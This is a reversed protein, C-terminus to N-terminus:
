ATSKWVPFAKSSFTNGSHSRVRWVDIPFSVQQMEQKKGALLKGAELISNTWCSGCYALTATRTSSSTTSRQRQAQGAYVCVVQESPDLIHEKFVGGFNNHYFVIRDFWGAHGYMADKLFDVQGPNFVLTKRAKKEGAAQVEFYERPMDRLAEKPVGGLSDNTLMMPFDYDTVWQSYKRFEADELARQQM